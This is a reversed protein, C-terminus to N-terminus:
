PESTLASAPRPPSCGLLGAVVCVIGCLPLVYAGAQLSSQASMQRAMQALEGDNTGTVDHLVQYLDIGTAALLGCLVGAAALVVRFCRVISFLVVLSAMSICAYVRAHNYDFSGVSGLGALSALPLWMGGIVGAGGIVGSLSAVLLRRTPDPKM